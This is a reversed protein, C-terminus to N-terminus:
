WYKTIFHIAIYILGGIFALKGLIILIFMFACGNPISTKHYYKM